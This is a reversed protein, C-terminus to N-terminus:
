WDVAGRRTQKMVESEDAWVIENTEAHVLRMSLRYYTQRQRRNRNVISTLDGILFYDNGLVRGAEKTTNPDMLGTRGLNFQDKMNNLVSRDVFRLAGADILFIQLKDAIDETDIYETTNNRVGILAIIPTTGDTSLRNLRNVM